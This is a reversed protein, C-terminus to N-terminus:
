QFLVTMLMTRFPGNVTAFNLRQATINERYVKAHCEGLVWIALDVMRHATVLSLIISSNEGDCIDNTGSKFFVFDPQVCSVLRRVEAEFQTLKLGSVGHLIVTFEAYDLGLNRTGAAIASTLLRKVFYHGIVSVTQSQTQPNNPTSAVRGSSSAM